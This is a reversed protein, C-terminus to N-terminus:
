PKGGLIRNLADYQISYLAGDPMGRRINRREDLYDRGARCHACCPAPGTDLLGLRYGAAVAEGRSHVTLKRFLKQMHTKVSNETVFLKAGIQAATLGDAMLRLIELQRPSLAAAPATV